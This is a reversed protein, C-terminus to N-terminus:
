ESPECDYVLQWRTLAPTLTNTSDPSL